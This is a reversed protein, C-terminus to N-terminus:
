THRIKQVAPWLEAIETLWAVNGAVDPMGFRAGPVRASVAGPLRSGSM